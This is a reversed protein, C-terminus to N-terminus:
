GLLEKTIKSALGGDFQGPYETKLMGMIKGMQKINKEGLIDFYGTIITTLQEESLQHPLYMKLLDREACATLVRPDTTGAFSTIVIDLNNLFSKITSITEEDTPERNNKKGVVECESILTTLVLAAIKNGSKRASLQDNKIEQLISM